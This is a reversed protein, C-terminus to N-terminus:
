VGPRVRDPPRVRDRLRVGSFPLGSAVVASWFPNLDPVFRLEIGAQAHLALLDGVARVSLPEIATRAVYHGDADPWPEFPAPELEYVYLTTSRIRDLWALKTAHVRPASTMFTTALREREAADRAWVAARPCDRPFWYLPAHAADIAWVAPAQSPNTQPVHPVFSSISPDESFHFLARTASTPDPVLPDPV